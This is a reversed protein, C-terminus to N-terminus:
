SESVSPAVSFSTVLVPRTLWYRGEWRRPDGKAYPRRECKIPFGHRVLKSIHATLRGGFPLADGHRASLTRQARGCCVIVALAEADRGDAAQSRWEGTDAQWFVRIAAPSIGGLVGGTESAIAVAPGWSGGRTKGDAWCAYLVGWDYPLPMGTREDIRLAPRLEIGTALRSAFAAGPDPPHRFAAAVPSATINALGWAWLTFTLLAPYNTGDNKQAEAIEAANLTRPALEARTSRSRTM